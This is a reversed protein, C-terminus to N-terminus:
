FYTKLPIPRHQDTRAIRKRKKGDPLQKYFKAFYTARDMRKLNRKFLIAVVGSGSGASDVM